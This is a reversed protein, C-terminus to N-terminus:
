FKVKRQTTFLELQHSNKKDNKFGYTEIMSIGMTEAPPDLCFLGIVYRTCENNEIASTAYKQADPLSCLIEGQHTDIRRGDSLYQQVETNLLFVIYRLSSIDM